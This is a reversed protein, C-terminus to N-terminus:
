ALGSPSGGSDSPSGGGAGGDPSDGGGDPHQEPDEVDLLDWENDVRDTLEISAVESEDVDDVRVIGNSNTKRSMESGDSLIIKVPERVVPKGDADVVEFEFWTKEKEPPPQQGPPTTGGGGGGGGGGPTPPVFASVPTSGPKVPAIARQRAKIRTMEGPDATDAEEPAAPDKPADPAVATGSAPSAGPGSAINIMSGDLTIKTGKITVGSSDIVINNGGCVLSIGGGGQIVVTGGTKLFYDGSTDEQHNGTIKEGVGAKAAISYQGTIELAMKDAVKLYAKGGVKTSHDGGVLDNRSGKIQYFQDKVVIRHFKGGIWQKVDNKVRLHHDKEAFMFIQEDGKKDELRIENFGGSGKSSNSKITSQTKNEPLAYPPMSGGNYVSGTVLPRDPDGELFEVVVEHGVRPLFVAGWGKGAWVQAVRMWCSLEEDKAKDPNR